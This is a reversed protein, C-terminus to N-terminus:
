FQTVSDGKAGSNRRVIWGRREQFLLSVFKSTYIKCATCQSLVRALLVDWDLKFEKEKGDEEEKEEGEEEEGEESDHDDISTMERDLSLGDEEKEEEEVSDMEEGDEVGRGKRVAGEKGKRVSKSKSNEKEVSHSDATTLTVPFGLLFVLTLFFQFETGKSM